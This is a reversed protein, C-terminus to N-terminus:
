RRKFWLLVLGLFVLESLIFWLRSIVAILSALTSPIVSTALKVFSLERVGLGMPTIVSLYGILWAAVNLGILWMPSASDIGPFSRYILANAMGFVLWVVAYWLLLGISEASTITTATLRKWRSVLNLTLTMMFPFFVAIAIAVWWWRHSDFFLATILAAGSVQSLAEIAMAQVASSGSTGHEVSTRYKAAFSWINGPVYRMLESVTWNRLSVHRHTDLGHRRIILEWALYRLVFWLQLLVLSAVLWIFNLNRLSRWISQDLQIIWKVIFSLAVITIVWGIIRWWAVRPRATDDM